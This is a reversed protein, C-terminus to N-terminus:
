TPLTACPLSDELMAPTLDLATVLQLFRACAAGPREDGLVPWEAEAIQRDFIHPAAGWRMFDPDIAEFGTLHEGDRAVHVPSIGAPFCLGVALAGGATFHELADADGGVTSAHEM